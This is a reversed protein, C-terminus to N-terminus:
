MRIFDHLYMKYGHLMVFADGRSNYKIKLKHYSKKSCWAGATCYIFDNVGYDIKNVEVGGVGSYYATAPNNLCIEKKSM